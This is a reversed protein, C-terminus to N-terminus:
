SASIDLTRGPLKMVQEHLHNVFDNKIDYAECIAAYDKFEEDFAKKEETGACGLDDIYRHAKHIIDSRMQTCQGKLITDIKNDQEQIREIIQQRWEFWDSKDDAVVKLADGYECMLSDVSDRWEAEAKRKETTETRALERKEDAQKFRSNLWLQSLLTLIGFTLPNNALYDLINPISPM